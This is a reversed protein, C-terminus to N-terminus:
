YNAVGSSAPNDDDTDLLSLDRVRNPKINNNAAFEQNIAQILQKSASDGKAIEGALSKALQVHDGASTAVDQQGQNLPNETGSQMNQQNNQQNNLAGQVSGTNKNTSNGSVNAQGDGSKMSYGAENLKKFETKVIEDFSKM